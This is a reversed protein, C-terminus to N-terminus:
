QTGTQGPELGPIPKLEEEIYTKIEPLKSDQKLADVAASAAKPNDSAAGLLVRAADQQLDRDTSAAAIKAVAMYEDSSLNRYAMAKVAERQVDISKDNRMTEILVTNAEANPLYRMSYAAAARTGVEESKLSQQLSSYYEASGHNGMAAIVTNKVESKNPDNLTKVLEQAVFQDNEPLKKAVAGAALLATGVLENDASVSAIKLMEQASAQTPNPHDNLGVMAQVKCFNDPCDNALKALSESIEAAQSQALLGFMVAVKREGAADRNKTALIRDVIGQAHAPNQIIDSKIVGFMEYVVKADTKDDMSDLTKMAEELSMTNAPRALDQALVAARQLTTKELENKTATLVAKPSSGKYRVSITTTFHISAPERYHTTLTGDVSIVRREPTLVYRIMNDESDVKIADQVYRDWTKLVKFNQGEVSFDYQVKATGAEDKETRLVPTGVEGKVPVFFKGLFSLQFTLLGAPFDKPLFHEAEGSYLTTIMPKNLLMATMSAEPTQDIITLETIERWESIFDHDGQKSQALVGTLGIVTGQKSGTRQTTKISVDYLAEDTPGPGKMVSADLGAPLERDPSSSKRIGFYVILILAVVLALGGLIKKM